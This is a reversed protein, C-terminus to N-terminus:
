SKIKFVRYQNFGAYIETSSVRLVTYVPIAGIMGPIGAITAGVFIIVFIELPHAKVSKSFILPQLLLNDTAQVVAFVSFVKAVLILTDNNFTFDGSTSVAVAIGFIGGLLPGLYPILNAIAAFVAITLAYNVGVISLGVAAISFISIMQFLIGLLFNSLLREIKYLASIFVEFYKNPIVAIVQRRLIGNEYLLFFTIFGVALVGIFFNGTFSILQNLIETFDMTHIFDVVGKRVSDVMFGSPGDSLRNNILFTEVWRVPQVLSDFVTSFDLSALVELQNSILPIFLVLFLALVGIVVAYSGFIAIYRPVKGGFVEFRIIQSTMPRLVTALVLSITLYIFINSFYWIAVGLLVVFVGIAVLTRKM